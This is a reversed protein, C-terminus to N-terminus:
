ALAAKERGELDAEYQARIVECLAALGPSLKAVADTTTVFFAAQEGHYRTFDGAQVLPVGTRQLMKLLTPNLMGYLHTRGAHDAMAVAAALAALWLCPFWARGPTDGPLYRRDRHEAPLPGRPRRFAPSVALRSVEASLDRHWSLNQLFGVHLSPFSHEELPLLAHDTACVLRVCAASRGSARHTILCHLAHADHHDSELRSANVPEHGLEECFVEHRLRAARARQEDSIAARVDFVDLFHSEALGASRM